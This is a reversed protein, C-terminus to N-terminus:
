LGRGRERVRGEPPSFSSMCDAIFPSCHFVLTLVPVTINFLVHFMNEGIQGETPETRGVEQWGGGVMKNLTGTTKSHRM